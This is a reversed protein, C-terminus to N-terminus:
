RTSAASAFRGVPIPTGILGTASLFASLANVDAPRIVGFRRADGRFLPGYAALQATALTRDLSRNEALLAKLGAAPDAIVDRYGHETADVFAAILAPRAQITKRTSFAVLGPYRPGGNEDFKFARTPTGDVNAQAGDAPYYGVFGAVKGAALAQVGNFGITVTKVRTPDGGAHDVTTELIVKDSPVGTVGVLKGELEKADDIADATRTIVGGLPRQVIASIAQANRGRDIQGMVDVSDALGFDAKGADILKLTDATSTPQIIKLDINNREYYGAAVARYIGAHVANPLYDLVLTAQTKAALMPERGVKGDRGDGCGSLAVLAVSALTV